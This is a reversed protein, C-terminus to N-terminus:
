SKADVRGLMVNLTRHFREVGGNTSPKSATTRVKDIELCHCLDKLVQAEFEKGQDTLLQMPLGVKLFVEKTLAKAATLAEKNKLPVAEAWKTFHDLATLIYVNESRSPPHPRTLDIAMRELPEGAKLSQLNGQRHPIGRYYRACEPCRECYRAVDSSWGYWYARRQVQMQTKRVGLHGRTAGVHALQMFIERETRPLLLVDHRRLGDASEGERFWVGHSLKLQERM